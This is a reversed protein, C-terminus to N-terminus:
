MASMAIVIAIVLALSVATYVLIGGTNSRGTKGNYATGCGGCKVHTLMAPGLMGGWLTFSVKQAKEARCSPCPKYTPARKRTAM